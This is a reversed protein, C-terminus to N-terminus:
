MNLNCSSVDHGILYLVFWYWCVLWCVVCIFFGITWVYVAGRTSCEAFGARFILAVDASLLTGTLMALHNLGHNQCIQKFIHQQTAWIGLHRSRAIKTGVVVVVYNCQITTTKMSIRSAVFNLCVVMITIKHDRFKNVGARKAFGVWKKVPWLKNIPMCSSYGRPVWFNIHLLQLHMYHVHDYVDAFIIPVNENVNYNGSFVVPEM